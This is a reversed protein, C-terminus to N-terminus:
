EGGVWGGGGVGVGVWVCVCVFAWSIWKGAVETQLQEMQQKAALLQQQLQDRQGSVEAVAAAVASEQM